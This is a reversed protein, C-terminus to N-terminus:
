IIRQDRLYGTLNFIVWEAINVAHDAIRELYKAIMMFDIAAEGDDRATRILEVAEARVKVFYDDVTDDDEIVKAALSHDDSVFADISENVMAIASEAMPLLGKPLKDDDRVYLAIGAIQAAQDAIREMDTVMKMATSIARLDRAVPQQSLMIRMCRGEIRLKLEEAEAEYRLVEGAVEADKSPSQLMGMPRNISREILAGMQVLEDKLKTMEQEFRTRAM